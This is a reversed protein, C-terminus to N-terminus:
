RLLADPPESGSKLDAVGVGAVGEVAVESWGSCVSGAGSCSRRSRTFLEGVGDLSTTSGAAVKTM